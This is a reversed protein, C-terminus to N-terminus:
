LDMLGIDKLSSDLNFGNLVKQVHILRNQHSLETLVVFLKTRVADDMLVILDAWFAPDAEGFITPEGGSRKRKMEDVVDELVALHREIKAVDHVLAAKWFGLTSIGFKFLDLPSSQKLSVVAFQKTIESTSTPLTNCFDAFRGEDLYLAAVLPWWYRRDTAFGDKLVKFKQDSLKGIKELAALRDFVSLPADLKLMCSILDQYLMAHAECVVLKGFAYQYQPKHSDFEVLLNSVSKDHVVKAIAEDLIKRSSKKSGLKAGGFKSKPFQGFASALGEKLSAASKGAAESAVGFALGHKLHKVILQNRLDDLRGAEALHSKEYEPAFQTSLLDAVILYITERPIHECALRALLKLKVPAPCKGFGCADAASRYLDSRVDKWKGGAVKLTKVAVAIVKAFEDEFEQWQKGGLDETDDQIM